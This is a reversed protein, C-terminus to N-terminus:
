LRQSKLPSWHSLYNAKWLWLQGCKKSLGFQKMRNVAESKIIGWFCIIYDNRELTILDDDHPLDDDSNFKIKMYKEDYNNLYNSASEILDKIKSRM